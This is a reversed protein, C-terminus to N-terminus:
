DSESVYYDDKKITDWYSVCIEIFENVLPCLLEDKTPPSSAWRWAVEDLLNVSGNNILKVTTIFENLQVCQPYPGDWDFRLDKICRLKPSDNYSKNEYLFTHWYVPLDLFTRGYITQITAVTNKILDFFTM